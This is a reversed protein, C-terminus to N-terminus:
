QARQTLSYLLSSGVESVSAITFPHPEAWGWIGMGLSFVKLRVHQGAHWGANIHPIEIRVMDLASITHLHATAVRTKVIRLVRDLAYLGVGTFVYPRANPAHMCAQSDRSAHTIRATSIFYYAKKSRGDHFDLRRRSHHLLHPLVDPPLHQHLLSVARGHLSACGPGLHPTPRVGRYVLTGHECVRVSSQLM